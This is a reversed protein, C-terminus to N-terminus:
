CLYSFFEQIYVCSAHMSYLFIFRFHTTLLAQLNLFINEPFVESSTYKQISFSIFSCVYLYKSSSCELCFCACFDQCKGLSDLFDLHASTSFPFFSFHSRLDSAQLHPNHIKLTGILLTFTKVKLSMPSMPPNGHQLSM